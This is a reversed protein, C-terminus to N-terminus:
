EDSTLNELDYGRGDEDVSRMPEYKCADTAQMAFEPYYWHPGVVM